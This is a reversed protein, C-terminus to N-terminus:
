FPLDDSTDPRHLTALAAARYHAMTKALLAGHQVIQDALVVQPDVPHLRSPESALAPHVAVLTLNVLDLLQHLAALIALEPVAVLENPTLAALEPPL